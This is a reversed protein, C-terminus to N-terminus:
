FIPVMIATAWDALLYNMESGKRWLTGIIKSSMTRHIAIAEVFIEDPGVAKNRPAKIIAKEILKLCNEDIEIGKIEPAWSKDAPTQMYKTFLSPELTDSSGLNTINAGCQPPMGTRKIKSQTGSALREALRRLQQKKNQRVQSKIRPDLEDHARKEAQTGSVLARRYLKKRHRAM